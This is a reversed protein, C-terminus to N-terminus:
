HDASYSKLGQAIFASLSCSIGMKKAIRSKTVNLTNESCRYLVCMTSTSFGCCMLAVLYTQRDTLPGYTSSLSSLYGPYAMNVMELVFKSTSNEPFYEEIVSSMVSSFASTSGYRYYADVLRDNVEILKGNMSIMADKVSSEQALRSMLSNSREVSERYENEKEKWRLNFTEAIQDAELAKIKMKGYKRIFATSLCLLILVVILSNIVRQKKIVAYREKMLRNESKLESNVIDDEYGQIKRSYYLSDAYMKNRLLAVSDGESRAIKMLVDYRALSTRVDTGVIKRLYYRASDVQGTAACSCAIYYFLDDRYSVVDQCSDEMLKVASLAVSRSRVYDPPDLYYFYGSLLYRGDVMLPLDESDESYILGAVICEFGRDLSDMALYLRALSYMENVARREDGAQEFCSIATKTRAISETFNVATSQYLEGIRTNLLGLLAPDSMREALPEAAKYSEMAAESEGREYQVAGQMMLARVLMDEPGRRRYYAAASFISTDSALPLWCKYEAETRLLTYFAHVGRRMRAVEASDVTLLTDLAAQPDTMMLSDAASLVGQIRSRSSTRDSCSVISLCLVASLPVAMLIFLQSLKLKMTYEKCFVFNRFLVAPGIRESPFVPQRIKFRIVSKKSSVPATTM